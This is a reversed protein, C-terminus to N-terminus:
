TPAGEDALHAAIAAVTPHSWLLTAPLEIGLRKTLGARLAVSLLSDIGQDTLARDADVAEPEAGLAEAAALRVEALLLKLRAEVGLESWPTAPPSPAEDALDRLLPTRAPGALVRLVALNGTRRADAFDWVRFAEAASIDATGRARLEADIAASSTSMGLGRWSTWALALTERHGDARRHRALGDLFSNAAAYAAQGPLHLLQGASSFLVLFDLAGPPFMEHLVVAGRVKPAMVTRLSQEDLGAIFRNDVVGAAHVVGRIRTLGLRGPQLLRAMRESDGVDAALLRVTVGAAELARRAERGERSLTARRGVLVIRRAGRGALWQAIRLGLAGTGGTVVYTGEPRCLPGAGPRGALSPQLRTTTLAGDSIAIVDETPRDHLLAVLADLDRPGPEPPLDVIGGWRDPHEGAAVRGLGWLATQALGAEGHAERAGRTVCWVRGHTADRVAGALRAALWMATEAPTVDGSCAPGPAFLVADADATAAGTGNSGASRRGHDPQEHLMSARRLAGRVAEDDGVVAVRPPRAGARGRSSTALVLPRWAIEYALAAAGDPEGDPRGFRLGRLRAVRLGDIAEVDIDVCEDGAIRVHVAAVDPPEGSVALERVAAPMRLVPTGTFLVSAVSFTADLLVAWSLRDITGDPDATVLASMTAADRRQGDVRWPFGMSPVGLETLRAVAFAPDDVPRTLGPRARGRPGGLPRADLDVLATAHTMWDGGVLSSLRVVDDQVVVQVDRPPSTSVPVHLSMDRLALGDVAALFTNVLVAAPVVETGLVGHEGPYPRSAHDLRTRWLRAPTSGLVSTRDGLLTHSAPDHGAGAAQPRPHDVWHRRRQWATTPVDVLRGGPHVAAWDVPVGHCHLAGLNELLTRREPKDRRLSHVVVAGPLTEAISHAVVPHASIEQFLRHGDEAAAAVAGAFRVPDRLNAAWYASDRPAADRPDALATSYLAIAAASVPLDSVAAALEDCLALMQPSHFAVDSAIRMVGLAEAEFAACVRAVAGPTGSVVTSGPSAAIAACVDPEEALRQAASEFPLSVMAMAGRGAVRGLLRSRRCALRAGDRLDLVGAVVAAAIEGVSHGIAAAPTVGHARWTAALAVQLAFTMAQIRQVGDLRREAIETRLSFGMEERYIADIEDVVAAFAPECALLGAGMGAWQAGHGSFVWVPQAPGASTHPAPNELGAVLEERDAAVVAIRAALHSRHRALTRAVDCLQAHSNGRLWAALGAANARAAQETAGSVPILAVSPSRPEDGPAPAPPAQEVVLHALTGGYGYSAVGATRPHGNDPWPTPESVLALGNRAWPIAPNPGDTALTAPIVGRDLALVTKVLGTVGAGAELHGVNPKISGILCPSEAPRGAGFVDALAGAEVVDGVPTGTGHAEVYDVRAPDIGAIELARRMVHAQATRSPAMIGDTRGDQHVASGRIVALVRDGDRQADALRKLVVFAGGEGRGYGDAAVDFAKSRGDRAIAGAADLVVNFGPAAMLLAGGALALPIEGLRLGQLAHHIAVLSSSCATDVVVSPGRLDLAHSIRASAGCPSGGIGTWAEVRPLDELLRRGYDVTGIGVFVGTDSGALSRAPIGAHELAEWALELCLRQQPDMLRAERPFIGFHEADFEAIDHRFCGRATTRRLLAANEFSQGAYPAWREAPVEGVADGRESLFQWLMAPSEIGAAYSCAMGVIAVPTWAPTM